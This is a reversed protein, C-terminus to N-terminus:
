VKIGKSAFARLQEYNANLVYKILRRTKLNAHNTIRAWKDHAKKDEDKDAYHTNITIDWWDDMLRKIEALKMYTLHRNFATRFTIKRM